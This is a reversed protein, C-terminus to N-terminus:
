SFASWWHSGVEAVGGVTVGAPKRWQRDSRDVEIECIDLFAAYGAWGCRRRQYHSQYRVPCHGSSRRFRCYFAAWM